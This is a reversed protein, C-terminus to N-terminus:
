ISPTCTATAVFIVAGIQPAYGQAALRRDRDGFRLGVIGPVVSGLVISIELLPSDIIIIIVMSRRLLALTGISSNAALSAVMTLSSLAILGRVGHPTSGSVIAGGIISGVLELRAMVIPILSGSTASRPSVIVSVIVTVVGHNTATTASRAISTHIHVVWYSVNATAPTRRRGFWGGTLPTAVIIGSTTSTGGVRPVQLRRIHLTTTAIAHASTAWRSISDLNALTSISTSAGVISSGM